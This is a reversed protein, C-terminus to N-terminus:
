NPVGGKMMKMMGQHHGMPMATMIRVATATDTKTNTDLAGEVMVHSGVVVDGLTATNGDKTFTTTGSTNVTFTEKATTNGFAPREVTFSNGNVATVNGGVHNVDKDMPGRMPMGTEINTAAVANGSVTGRVAVMDGVKIDGLTITTANPGFGKTIKANTTDVTFVTNNRDTVTLTNGSAATVSGVVAPRAMHMAGKAMHRGWFTNTSTTQALAAGTLALTGLMAGSSLLLLRKKNM